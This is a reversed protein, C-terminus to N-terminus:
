IILVSYTEVVYAKDISLECSMQTRASEPSFICRFIYM